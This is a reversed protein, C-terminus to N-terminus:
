GKTGTPEDGDGHAPSAAFAVCDHPMTLLDAEAHRARQSAKKAQNGCTAMSCWRRKGPRSTDLFLINCDPNACRRVRGIGPGSVLELADRAALSLTAAVPDAAHYGVSGDPRLAPAPVERAAWTNILERDAPPCPRAGQPSTAAILLAYIAERLRRASSVPVSTGTLPGAPECPGFLSTWETLRSPTVLEEEAGPRDRYRLTRVFDLCLRGAGSRFTHRALTEPM